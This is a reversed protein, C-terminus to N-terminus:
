PRQQKDNAEMLAPLIVSPQTADSSCAAPTYIRNIAKTLAPNDVEDTRFASTAAIALRVVTGIRIEFAAHTSVNRDALKSM